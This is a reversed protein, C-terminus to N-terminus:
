PFGIEDGGTLYLGRNKAYQRLDNTRLYSAAVLYGSIVFFTAVGIAGGSEYGTLAVIPKHDLRSLAYAHSFLVLSAAAFRILDFNNEHRGLQM